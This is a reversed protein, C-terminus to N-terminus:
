KYNNRHINKILNILLPANEWPNSNLQHFIKGLFLKKLILNNNHKEDLIKFYELKELIKNIIEQSEKFKKKNISRLILSFKSNLHPIKSIRQYFGKIYQNELFLNEIEKVENEYIKFFKDRHNEKYSLLNEYFNDISQEFINDNFDKFIKIAKKEISEELKEMAKIPSEQINTFEMPDFNILMSFRNIILILFIVLKNIGKLM